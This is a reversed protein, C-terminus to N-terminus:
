SDITRAPNSSLDVTRIGELDGRADRSLNGTRNLNGQGGVTQRENTPASM